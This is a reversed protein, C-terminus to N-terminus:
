RAPPVRVGALGGVRADGAYRADGVFVIEGAEHVPYPFRSWVLFDRVAPDRAVLQAREGATLVPLADGAPRGVRSAADGYGRFTGRLYGADTVAVYSGHFPTAPAPQFMVEVVAQGEAELASRIVSEARQSVAIMILVYALALAAGARAASDRNRLRGFGHLLAAGAAGAMWIWGAPPPMEGSVLLLAGMALGLAAWFGSATRSPRTAVTVAGALLLWLWPDIIFLADGYFWRRDFPMLLRVGYTNLWDLLPHTLAGMFALPLLARSSVPPEGPDRRRRVWRDWGAMAAVLVLPLILLGVPGHSWGRRLALGAYEGAEYALIDLDPINAALVLTATALPTTRHLGARSLAAGTLTHTIPDM